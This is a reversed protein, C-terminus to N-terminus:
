KTRRLTLIFGGDHPDTDAGSPPPQNMPSVYLKTADGDVSYRAHYVTNSRVVVSFDASGQSASIPYKTDFVWFGAGTLLAAGDNTAVFKRDIPDPEYLELADAAIGGAGAVKTVEWTGVLPSAPKKSDQRAIQSLLEFASARTERLRLLDSQLQPVDADSNIIELNAGDGRFFAILLKAAETTTYGSSVIPWVREDLSSRLTVMEGALV